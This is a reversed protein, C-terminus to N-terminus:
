IALASGGNVMLYEAPPAAKGGISALAVFRPPVRASRLPLEPMPALTQLDPWPRVMRYAPVNSVFHSSAGAVKGPAIGEGTLLAKHYIGLGKLAQLPQARQRYAVGM